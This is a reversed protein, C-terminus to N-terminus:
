AADGGRAGMVIAKIRRKVQGLECWTARRHRLEADVLIQIREAEDESIQFGPEAVFWWDCNPHNERFYVEVAGGRLPVYLSPSNM